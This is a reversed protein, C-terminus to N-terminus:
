LWDSGRTGRHQGAAQVARTGRTSVRSHTCDEHGQARGKLSSWSLTVVSWCRAPHSGAPSMGASRKFPSPEIGHANGAQSSCWCEAQVFCQLDSHIIWLWVYGPRFFYSGCGAALQNPILFFVTRLTNQSFGGERISPIPQQACFGQAGAGFVPVPATGYGLSIDPQESGASHAPFM